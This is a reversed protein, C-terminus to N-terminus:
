TNLCNCYFYELTTHDKKATSGDKLDTLRHLTHDTEKEVLIRLKLLDHYIM